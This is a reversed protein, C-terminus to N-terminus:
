GDDVRQRGLQADQLGLQARQLRGLALGHAADGLVGPLGIVQKGHFPLLLHLLGQVQEEELLALFVLERLGEGCIVGLDNLGGVAAPSGYLGLLFADVQQGEQQAQGNRGEDQKQLIEQRRRDLPSVIQLREPRGEGALNRLRATLLVPPARLFLIHDRHDDRVLVPVHHVLGEAHDPAVQLEQQAVVSGM